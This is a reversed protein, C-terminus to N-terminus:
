DQIYDEGSILAMEAKVFERGLYLAHDFRTIPCPSAEETIKIGLEKATRGKFVRIPTRPVSQNCPIPDGTDPDVALGKDNIDNSYQDACILQQERDIYILFYGAPDLAIYRNSLRNDLAAMADALPTQPSVPTDASGNGSTGNGSTSSHASSRISETAHTM